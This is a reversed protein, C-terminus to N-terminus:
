LAEPAPPYPIWEVSGYASLVAEKQEFGLGQVVPRVGRALVAEILSTLSEDQHNGVHLHVVDSFVRSSFEFAAAKSEETAWVRKLVTASVSGVAPDSTGVYTAPDVEIEWGAGTIGILSAVRIEQPLPYVATVLQIKQGLTWAYPPHPHFEGVGCCIKGDHILYHMVHKSSGANGATSPAFHLFNSYKSSVLWNM